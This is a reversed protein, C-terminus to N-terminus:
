EPKVVEAKLVWAFGLEDIACRVKRQPIHLEDNKISNAPVLHLDDISLTWDGPEAFVIPGSGEGVTILGSYVYDYTENLEVLVADGAKVLRSM